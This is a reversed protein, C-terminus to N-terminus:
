ENEIEKQEPVFDFVKSGIDSDFLDFMVLPIMIAYVMNVNAPVLIRILPLHLM